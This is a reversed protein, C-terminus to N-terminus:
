QEEREACEDNINDVFGDGVIYGEIAGCRRCIRPSDDSCAIGWEHAM